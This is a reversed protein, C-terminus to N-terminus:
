GGEGLRRVASRSTAFLTLEGLALLEGDVEVPEAVVDLLEPGLPRGEPTVLLAVLALGAGDRAVLAAPSGGSICRIACDKHSKGEGPKMVGLYCKSDVIEGALTARDLEHPPTAAGAGGSPSAVAEARAVEFLRREGRRIWSGVLRVEQGALALVAASPGHKGQGVLPVVELTPGGDSAAASIWLAPLPEARLVGELEREVGFEFEGSGLPRQGAALIAAVAIALLALAVVARRLFRALGEPVPLYGVFFDDDRRPGGGRSM